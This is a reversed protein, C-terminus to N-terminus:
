GILRAMTWLILLAGPVSLWLAWGDSLLLSLALLATGTCLAAACGGPNLEDDPRM